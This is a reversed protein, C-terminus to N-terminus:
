CLALDTEMVIEVTQSFTCISKNLSKDSRFLEELAYLLLNLSPTSPKSEGRLIRSYFNKEQSMVYISIDKEKRGREGSIENLCM